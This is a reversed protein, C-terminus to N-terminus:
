RAKEAGALQVIELLMNCAETYEDIEIYEELQHFKHTGTGLTVTPLGMENFNSADLGADMRIQVPTLGMREAAKCAWQVCQESAELLFARYDNVTAFHVAGCEGADCVVQEVAENFSTKYVALIEELFSPDHSRCEGTLVARDMVQNNAEGGKITGLNSTGTKHGVQIRGFYGKDSILSMAKAAILGASIGKQPELGAHTSRGEIEVRWRAASM